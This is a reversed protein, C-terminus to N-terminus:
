KRDFFHISSCDDYLKDLLDFAASVHSADQNSANVLYIISRLRLDAIRPRLIKRREMPDGSPKKAQEVIAKALESIESLIILGGKEM